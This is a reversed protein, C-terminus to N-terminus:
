VRVRVTDRFGETVRVRVRVRVGLGVGPFHSVAFHSTVCAALDIYLLVAYLLLCSRHGIM